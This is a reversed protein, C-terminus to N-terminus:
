VQLDSPWGHSLLSGVFIVSLNLGLAEGDSERRLEPGTVGVGACADEVGAMPSWQVDWCLGCPRTRQRKRKGGERDSHGESGLGIGGGGPLERGWSRAWVLSGGDAEKGRGRVFWPTWVWSLHRM